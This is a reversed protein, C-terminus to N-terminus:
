LGAWFQSFILLTREAGSFESSAGILIPLSLLYAIRIPQYRHQPFKLQQRRRFGM